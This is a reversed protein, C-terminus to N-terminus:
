TKRGADTWPSTGGALVGLRDAVRDVWQVLGSPFSTRENTAVKPPLDTM